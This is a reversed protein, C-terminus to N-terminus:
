QAQSAVGQVPQPVHRNAHHGDASNKEHAKMRDKKRDKARAERKDMMDALQLRQAPTLVRAMGAALDWRKAAVEQHHALMRARLSQLATEDITPQRLLAKMDQHLAQHVQRQQAMSEKHSKALAQLQAKQEDTVNLRKYIRDAHKGALPPLGGMAMSAEMEGHKHHHREGHGAYVNFTSMAALLAAAVGLGGVWWRARSLYNSETTINTQTM